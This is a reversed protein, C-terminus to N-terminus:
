MKKEQKGMAKDGLEKMRIDKDWMEGSNKIIAIVYAIDSPDVIDVSSAQTLDPEKALIDPDVKKQNTDETANVLL